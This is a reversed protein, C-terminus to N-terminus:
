APDVVVELQTLALTFVELDFDDVGGGPRTPGTVLGRNFKITNSLAGGDNMEHKFAFKSNTAGAARMAIQGPDSAIRAVSLPPNGADATGKAKDAVVTDLTNYTLINVDPGTQGIDGVSKVEVFTLAEYAAQNLEDPQPTVCISFVSEAQTNAM